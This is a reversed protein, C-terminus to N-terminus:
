DPIIPPLEPPDDNVIPPVMQIEMPKAYFALAATICWPIVMTLYDWQNEILTYVIGIIITNLISLGIGVIILWAGLRRDNGRGLDIFSRIGGFICFTPAILLLAGLGFHSLASVREKAAKKRNEEAGAKLNKSEDEISEAIREPDGLDKAFPKCSSACAKCGIAMADNGCAVCSHGCSETSKGMGDFIPIFAMLLSGM